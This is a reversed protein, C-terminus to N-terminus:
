VIYPLGAVPILSRRTAPPASPSMATKRLRTCLRPLIPNSGGDQISRTVPELCPAAPTLGSGASVRRSQGQKLRDMPLGATLGGRSHSTRFHGISARHAAADDDERGLEVERLTRLDDDDHRLSFLGLRRRGP